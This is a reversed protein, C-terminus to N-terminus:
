DFGLDARLLSQPNVLLPSKGATRAVCLKVRHWSSPPIPKGQAILVKCISEHVEGATIDRRPSPFWETWIASTLRIDFQKELRFNFDLFDVGM